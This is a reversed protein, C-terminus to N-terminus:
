FYFLVKGRNHLTAHLEDALSESLWDTDHGDEKKDDFTHPATIIIEPDYPNNHSVVEKDTLLSILTSKPAEDAARVQQIDSLQTRAAMQPAAKTVIKEM